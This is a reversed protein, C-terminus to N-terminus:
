GSVTGASGELRHWLDHLQEGSAPEAPEQTGTCAQRHPQAGPNRLSRAQGHRRLSGPLQARGGRGAGSLGGAGSARHYALALCLQCSSVRNLM